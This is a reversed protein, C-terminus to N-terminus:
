QVCGIPKSVEVESSEAEVRSIIQMQCTANHGSAKLEYISGAEPTFKANHVCAFGDNAMLMVLNMERGASVWLGDPNIDEVLPNGHSVAIARKAGQYKEGCKVNGDVVDVVTVASIIKSMKINTQLRARPEDSKPEIYKERVACGSSFIVVAIFSFIRIFHM